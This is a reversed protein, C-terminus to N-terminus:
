ALIADVVHGHVDTLRRRIGNHYFTLKEHDIGLLHLATAHFDHVTVPNEAPKRGFEDSVGYAMGPKVGAGAFWCTFCDPHHDRGATKGIGQSVPTRGFETVGMVLTDELLGRAELDRILGAVPKDYERARKGHNEEINGHSDWNSNSGGHYVQVFRVGRELLRRALLCRQGFPETEKDDLGYLRRTAESEEKLDV